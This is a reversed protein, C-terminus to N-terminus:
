ESNRGTRNKEQNIIDRYRQMMEDSPAEVDMKSYWDPLRAQSPAALNSYGSRAARAQQSEKEKQIFALAKERTDIRNRKWTGAVKLIHTKNIQQSCANMSYELLQNIVENAFGYQESLIGLVEKESGLVSTGASLRLELFSTPDSRYPDKTNLKRATKKKYPMEQRLKDLDLRTRSEDICRVVYKRMDEAKIGYTNALVAIAELNEPTRICDPIRRKMRYFFTDWDFEISALNAKPMRKQRAIEKSQDWRADLEDISFAASVNEFGAMQEEEELHFLVKVKQYYSDTVTDFFIRGLYDHRLFNRPNRPAKLEFLWAEKERNYRSVLLLHQELVTRFQTFQGENLSCLLLLDDIPMSKQGNLSLLTEYLLCARDHILPRYLFHLYSSLEAPMDQDALITCIGKM